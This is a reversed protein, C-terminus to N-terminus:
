LLHPSLYTTAFAILGAVVAFYWFMEVVQFRLQQAPADPPEPSQLSRAILGVQLAVGAAAVLLIFGNLTFFVSAYASHTPAFPVTLLNALQTGIFGAGLLAAGGMAGLPRGRRRRRSWSSGILVIGSAALIGYAIYGMTLDPLPLGDQPWQQSYLRLYFYSYVLAALATALIALLGLMGWWGTSRPGSAVVPLGLRAELDEAEDREIAPEHLLWYGIVGAAFIAAAVALSYSKALVASAAVLLGVAAIFPVYTPGPLRQLAQPRGNVADTLLTARWGAPRRDLTAAVAQLAAPPEAPSTRPWLPYLDRVVPPRAFGYGPPPSPVSWELTGGNWPDNGAQRGRRMSWVLTSAATLFGLALVAAGITAAVNYGSLELEAPYTYVRRPMGFFGLIHMPFFTVNFGVFVLWFALKGWRGAPMRGTLKPWWYFLGAFLPFVAGGILVYHFHAVVFYTDHVQWDFPMTAVMVGTLGGLVFIFIFGLIFLLPTDYRPRSGWLTAIWAFIQVGSALAVSFSAAAFFLMSVEPLGTTYMHHMWLGFSVFGIIMLAAVILMYAVIPRRAFTPVITSVVGTAPLFIIYVEPHGFFWFLHQWLLSSGGYTPNFFHTGLTRDMELLLTALLLPTFGFIIMVGAILSSWVFLPMRHLAMGITRLKLTSVVIEVAASLGAIEVMGLGLLWFDLGLGSYKRGSLPTYAFWGADPVQGAVFSAYMVLGGFLYMWYGFNTLRPFAVDRSGIMLPVLYLALGEVFPVAFLYMMTSGHMTFIENYIEPGLLDNDAVTLQARLLLSLVGALAFFMLSTIMYRKGLPRNNVTAIWGRVGPPSQWTAEFRDNTVADVQTPEGNTQSM